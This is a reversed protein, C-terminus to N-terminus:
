FIIGLKLNFRIYNISETMEVLRSTNTQWNWITRDYVYEARQNSLSLGYHWILEDDKTRQKIGFGFETKLGGKKEKIVGYEWQSNSTLNLGYGAQISYFPSVRRKQLDGSLGGMVALFSGGAEIYRAVEASVMPQVLYNLRYGASVQATIGRISLNNQIAIFKGSDPLAMGERRKKAKNSKQDNKHMSFEKVESMPYVVPVHGFVRFFVSDRKISDLVGVMQTGSKLYLIDKSYQAFGRNCCLLFAAVGLFRFLVKIM